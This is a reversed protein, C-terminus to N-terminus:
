LVFHQQQNCFQCAHICFYACHHLLLIMSWPHYIQFMVIHKGTLDNRIAIVYNWLKAKSCNLNHKPHIESILTNLNPPPYKISKLKYDTFLWVKMVSLLSYIVLMQNLYNSYTVISTTSTGKFLFSYLWWIPYILGNLLDYPWQFLTM